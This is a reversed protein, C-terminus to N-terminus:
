TFLLSFPGFNWVNLQEKEYSVVWFPSVFATWIGLDHYGKTFLWWVGKLWFVWRIGM